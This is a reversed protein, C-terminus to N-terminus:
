MTDRGLRLLLAREACGDAEGVKGQGEARAGRTPRVAAKCGHRLSKVVGTRLREWVLFPREWGALYWFHGYERRYM